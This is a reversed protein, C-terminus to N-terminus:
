DERKRERMNGMSIDKGEKKAVCLVAVENVEGSGSGDEAVTSL